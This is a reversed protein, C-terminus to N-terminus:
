DLFRDKIIEESIYQEYLKRKKQICQGSKEEYFRVQKKMKPIDLTQDLEKFKELADEALAAQQKIVDLVVKEVDSLQFCKKYCKAKSDYIATRCRASINKM